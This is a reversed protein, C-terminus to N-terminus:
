LFLEPNNHVLDDYTDFSCVLEHPIHLEDTITLTDLLNIVIQLLPKKNSYLFLGSVKHNSVTTRNQETDNIFYLNVGKKNCWTYLDYKM